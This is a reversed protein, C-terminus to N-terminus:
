DHTQNLLLSFLEKARVSYSHYSRFPLLLLLKKKKKIIIIQKVLFGSIDLRKRVSDIELFNTLSFMNEIHRLSDYLGLFLCIRIIEFMVLMDCM